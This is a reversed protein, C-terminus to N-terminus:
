AVEAVCFADPGREGRCVIRLRRLAGVEWTRLLLRELGAGTFRWYDPEHHVPFEFPAVLIVFGFTGVVRVMERVTHWPWPDHELQQGSIVLDPNFDWDDFYHSWEEGEDVVHDVGSGEVLDIGAYSKVEKFVDLDRYSGNVNLSGVELVRRPDRPLGSVLEYMLALSSDHM